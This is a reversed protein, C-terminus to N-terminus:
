LSVYLTMTLSAVEDELTKRAKVHAETERLLNKQDEAAQHTKETVVDSSDQHRKEEEKLAAELETIQAPMISPSDYTKM